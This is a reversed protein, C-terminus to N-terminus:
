ATLAGALERARGLMRAMAISDIYDEYSVIQGDRVRVVALARFTYPQETARSWGQHRFEAVIVEPDDTQRLM